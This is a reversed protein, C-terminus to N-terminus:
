GIIEYLKKTKATPLGDERYSRVIVPKYSEDKHIAATVFGNIM